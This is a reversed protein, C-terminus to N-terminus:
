NSLNYIEVAEQMKAIDGNAAKAKEIAAACGILDTDIFSAVTKKTLLKLKKDTYIFYDGIKGETGSSFIPE